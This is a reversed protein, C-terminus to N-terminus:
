SVDEKELEKRTGIPVGGSSFYVRVNRQGKQTKRKTKSFDRLNKLGPVGIGKNGEQPFQIWGGERGRVNCLGWTQFFDPCFCDAQQGM